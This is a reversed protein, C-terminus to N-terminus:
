VETNYKCCYSGDNIQMNVLTEDSVLPMHGNHM